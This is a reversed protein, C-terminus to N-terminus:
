SWIEFVFREGKLQILCKLLMFALAHLMGLTGSESERINEGFTHAADYLVKLNYKKAIAEIGEVDCVNGYVHVPVIACTKETILSELKSTDLTYDDMNIDCFIPKLGNRVIAHMTSAFTFPTTVVEGGTPLNFAQLTLELAMHSKMIFFM